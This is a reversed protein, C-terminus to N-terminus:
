KRGYVVYQAGAMCRTLWKELPLFWTWTRPFFFLFRTAIDRLAAAKFYRTLEGPRLLQVGADFPCQAVSWRTLPNWPNHEFIALLGGPALVRACEAIVAARETPAVHHMVCISFVVDVSAEPLPIARGDGIQFYVSAVSKTKAQKLLAASPDVAILRKFRTGLYAEAVGHGCGVDLAVLTQPDRGAQQLLELLADCKAHVFGQSTAGGVHRLIPTNVRADYDRAHADFESPPNM